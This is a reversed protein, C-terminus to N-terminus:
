LAFGREITEAGTRDPTRTDQARLAVARRMTFEILWYVPRTHQDVASIDYVGSYVFAAAAAIAVVGALAAGVLLNRMNKM